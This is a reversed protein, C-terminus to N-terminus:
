EIRLNQVSNAVATKIAQLSVSLLAVTVASLGALVFVLVDTSIRYAFGQLWQNAFYWVIPSAIVFAILVPVIFEKSLRVTINTLTAGLIKRISIEKAKKQATYLALSFLGIYSIFIAVGTASNILISTRRDKEYLMAISEDLFHFSFTGEPYVQRFQNEISAIGNKLDQANNVTAYFKNRTIIRVAIKLYMSFM